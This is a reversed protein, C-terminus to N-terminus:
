TRRFGCKTKTDFLPADDDVDAFPGHRGGALRTRQRNAASYRAGVRVKADLNHHETSGVIDVNHMTNTDIAAGPGVM